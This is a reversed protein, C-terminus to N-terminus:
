SLFSFPKSLDIDPLMRMCNHCESPYASWLRPFRCKCRHEGQEHRWRKPPLSDRLAKFERKAELLEELILILEGARCGIESEHISRLKAIRQQIAEDTM